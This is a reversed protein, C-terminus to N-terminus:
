LKNFSPNGPLLIRTVRSQRWTKVIQEQWCGTLSNKQKDGQYYADYLADSYYKASIAPHDFYRKVFLARDDQFRSARWFAHRIAVKELGANLFTGESIAGLFLDFCKTRNENFLANLGREVAGKQERKDGIKKLIYTFRQPMCALDASYAVEKLLDSPPDLADFVNDLLPQEAHVSLVRLLWSKIYEFAVSNILEVLEPSGLSILYEGCYKKLEDNGSKFIHYADYMDDNHVAEKFRQFKTNTIHNKVKVLVSPTRQEALLEHLVQGVEVSASPLALQDGVQQLTEDLMEPLTLLALLSGIHEYGASEVLGM